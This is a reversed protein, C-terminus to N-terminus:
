ERRRARELDDNLQESRAEAHKAREIALRESKELDECRAILRKREKGSQWAKYVAAAGVISVTIAISIAVTMVVNVDISTATGWLPRLAEGVVFLCGIVLLGNLGRTALKYRAETRVVKLYNEFSVGEDSTESPQRSRVPKRKSSKAM